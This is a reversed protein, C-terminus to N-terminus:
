DYSLIFFSSEAIFGNADYFRVIHKGTKFGYINKFEFINEPTDGGGFLIAKDRQASILEKGDPTFYKMNVKYEKMADVTSFKSIKYGVKVTNITRGKDINIGKEEKDTKIFTFNIDKLELKKLAMKGKETNLENINNSLQSIRLESNRLKSSIDNNQNKLVSIKQEYNKQISDIMGNPIAYKLVEKFQTLQFTDVENETNLIQYQLNDLQKRTNLIAISKIKEIQIKLENVQKDAQEKTITGADLAERISLEKKKIESVQQSILSDQTLNLDELEKMSSRINGLDNYFLKNSNQLNDKGIKYNTAITFM